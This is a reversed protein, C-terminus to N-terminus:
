TRIRYIFTRQVRPNRHTPSLASRRAMIRRPPPESRTSRRNQSPHRRPRPQLPVPVHNRLPRQHFKFPQQLLPIKLPRCFRGFESSRRDGCVSGEEHGEQLLLEQSIPARRWTCILECYTMPQQRELQELADGRYRDRRIIDSVCYCFVGELLEAKCCFLLSETCSYREALSRFVTHLKSSAYKQLLKCRDTRCQLVWLLLRENQLWLLTLQLLCQYPCIGASQSRFVDSVTCSTIVHDDFSLNKGAASPFAGEVISKFTSHSYYIRVSYRTRSSPSRRCPLM